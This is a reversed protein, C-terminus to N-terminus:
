KIKIEELDNSEEITTVKIRFREPLSRLIKRILKANSVSKRLSVMSNRLNRMKTYFEGFTEDELM